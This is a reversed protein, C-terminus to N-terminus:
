GRRKAAVFLPLLLVLLVFASVAFALAILGSKIKGSAILAIGSVFLSIITALYSWGMYGITPGETDIRGFALVFFIFAMLALYVEQAFVLIQWWLKKTKPTSNM